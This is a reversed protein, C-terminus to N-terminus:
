DAIQNVRSIEDVGPFTDVAQLLFDNEHNPVEVRRRGRGVNPRAGPSKPVKAPRAWKPSSVQHVRLWLVLMEKSEGDWVTRQGGSQVM